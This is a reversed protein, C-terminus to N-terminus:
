RAMVKLVARITLALVVLAGAGAVALTMYAEM